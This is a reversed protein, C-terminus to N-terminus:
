SKKKFALLEVEWVVRNRRVDLMEELDFHQRDLLTFGSNELFDIIREVPHWEKWGKQNLYNLPSIILMKGGKKLMRYKERVLSAPDAVRDWLFCSFCFDVSADKLPTLCADSLAFTLNKLNSTKISLDDMGNQFATLKFESENENKFIVDAMKLMQYSYDLGIFYAEPHLGALQGSLYGSGCGLEVVLDDKKFTPYQRVKELLSMGYDGEYFNRTSRLVNPNYIEYSDAKIEAETKPYYLPIRKRYDLPPPLYEPTQTM